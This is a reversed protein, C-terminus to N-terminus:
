KQIKLNSNLIIYVQILGNMGIKLKLKPTIENVYRLKISTVMEVSLEKLADIILDVDKFLNNPSKFFEGNYSVTISFNNLYLKKINEQEYEWIKNVGQNKLIAEDDLNFEAFNEEHTSVKPFESKIIEEFNTSPDGNKGILIPVSRFELRFLIERLFKETVKSNM